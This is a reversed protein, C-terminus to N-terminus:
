WAGYAAQPRAPLDHVNEASFAAVDAADAGGVSVEWGGAGAAVQIPLQTMWMVGIVRRVVVGM